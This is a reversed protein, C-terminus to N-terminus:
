AAPDREGVGVVCEVDFALQDGDRWSALLEGYARRMREQVEPAQARWTVGFNGISTAGAWFDDPAVRWTWSTTTGAAALGASSLLSVLGDVSREFDLTAPLRPVDPRVGGAADLVAGWLRAQPPPEAPWTTVLVRGGPRVVRALDAVATRPDDLHNVVFSAVVADFSGDPWPLRPLGATVVAGGTRAAALSAMAPDPDCATVGHGREALAAALHGAGCGVDLVSARAPLRDVLLPVAGACLTAFSRDYVDAVDAWLAEAM